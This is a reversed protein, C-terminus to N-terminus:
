LGLIKDPLVVHTQPLQDWMLQLVKGLKDLKEPKPQVQLMIMLEGSMSTWSTSTLHTRLDNM